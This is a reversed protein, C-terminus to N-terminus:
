EMYINFLLFLYNPLSFKLIWESQFIFNNNILKLIKILITQKIKLQECSYSFYFIMWMDLFLKLFILFTQYLIFYYLFHYLFINASIYFSSGASYFTIRLLYNHISCLTCSYLPLLLTINFEIFNVGFESWHVCLLSKNLGNSELM